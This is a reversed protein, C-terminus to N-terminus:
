YTSGTEEAVQCVRKDVSIANMLLGGLVIQVYLFVTLVADLTLICVSFGLVGAAIGSVWLLEPSQGCKKKMLERARFGNRVGAGVLLFFPVAGVLGCDSLLQVYTNHTVKKAQKRFVWAKFDDELYSFRNEYEMKAEPYTLFGTGLLPNDAFVMLGAQVLIVRSRASADLTEDSAMTEMRQFFADSALLTVAAVVVVGGLIAVRLTKRSFFSFAVLGVFTGIIGARSMTSIIACMIIAMMGLALWREKRKESTYVRTLALPMFLVFVAAVGNSDGWGTGGLGELRINGRLHQEIGWIGLVSVTALLVTELKRIERFSGSLISLFACVGVIKGIEFAYTYERDGVPYKAYILSLMVAAFLWIILLIEARLAKGIRSLDGQLVLGALTVLYYVQYVYNGWRGGWFLM